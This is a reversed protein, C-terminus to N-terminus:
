CLSSLDPSEKWSRASIVSEKTFWFSATAGTWRRKLRHDVAYARLKRRMELFEEKVLSASFM